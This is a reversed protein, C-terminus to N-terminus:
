NWRWDQLFFSLQQYPTTLKPDACVALYGLKHAIHLLVLLNHRLLQLGLQPRSGPAESSTATHLHLHIEMQRTWSKRTQPKKQQPWADKQHPSQQLTLVLWIIKIWWKRREEPEGPDGAPSLVHRRSSVCKKKMGVCAILGFLFLFSSM